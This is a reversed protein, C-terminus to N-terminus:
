HVGLHFRSLRIGRFQALETEDHTAEDREHESQTEDTSM